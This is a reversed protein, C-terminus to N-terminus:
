SARGPNPIGVSRIGYGLTMAEDHSLIRDHVRVICQRGGCRLCHPSYRGQTALTESKCGDCALEVDRSM